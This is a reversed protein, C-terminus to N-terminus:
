STPKQGAATPPPEATAGSGEEAPEPRVGQEILEDYWLDHHQKAWNTDVRGKAMGEFAGETGLTGIYIHGFAFAIWFMAVVAHVVQSWAMIERSQGWNPFDLIFGTVVVISGMIVVGLWYWVKEGGNLKGASPHGKGILGGGTAFWKLDTGTPINNRVWMLIMVLLAVGFAPGLFNHVYMAAQAYGAFGANGMLPILVHRGFLLSLGTISLLIFSIAVFWHVSREFVTWRPVTMGSRGGDLRIRGRILFFLAVGVLALGMVWSGVAKVPGNRMQRWNEGINSILQNTVYPGSATTFGEGDARAYRWTDSRPNTAREESFREGSPQAVAGPAVLYAGLPLAMSLVLVLCFTWFMSKKRRALSEQATRTSTSM